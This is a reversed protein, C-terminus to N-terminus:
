KVFVVNVAKILATVTDGEKFGAEKLSETTMVSTVENDGVRATVISMVDGAVIESIKGTLQNRVGAQMTNGGIISIDSLIISPIYEIISLCAYNKL